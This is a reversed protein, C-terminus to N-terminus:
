LSLKIISNNNDSNVFNICNIGKQATIKLCYKSVLLEQIVKDVQEM